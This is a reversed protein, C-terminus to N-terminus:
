LNCHSLVIWSLIDWFVMSYGPWMAPEKSEMYGSNIAAIQEGFQGTDFFGISLGRILDDNDSWPGKKQNDHFEGINKETNCSRVWFIPGMM